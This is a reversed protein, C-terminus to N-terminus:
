SVVVDASAIQSDDSTDRLTLTWTGAAPFIVSNWEATGSPNTSFPNSLLDDSGSKRLRFRYVIEPETPYTSASFAGSDNSPEDVCTINCATLKATIHGSTPSIAIGAAM